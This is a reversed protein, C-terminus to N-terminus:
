PSVVQGSTGWRERPTIPEEGEIFVNLVNENIFVSSIHLCIEIVGIFLLLHFSMTGGESRKLYLSM